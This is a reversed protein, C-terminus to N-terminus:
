FDFQCGATIPMAQLLDNNFGVASFINNHNAPYTRIVPPTRFARILKETSDAPIVDDFNARM